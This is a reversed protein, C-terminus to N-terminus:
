HGQGWGSYGIYLHSEKLLDPLMWNQTEILLTAKERIRPTAAGGATPASATHRGLVRSMVMEDEIFPDLGGGRFGGQPEGGFCRRLAEIRWIELTPPKRMLLINNLTFINWVSIWCLITKLRTIPCHDKRTGSSRDRRRLDPASLYGFGL